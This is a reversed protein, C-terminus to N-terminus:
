LNHVPGTIQRIINFKSVTRFILFVKFFAVAHIVGSLVSGRVQM